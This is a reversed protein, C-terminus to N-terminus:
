ECDTCMHVLTHLLGLVSVHVYLCLPVLVLGLDM